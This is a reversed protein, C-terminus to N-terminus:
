CLVLFLLCPTAFLNTLVNFFLGGTGAWIEKQIVFVELALFDLVLLILSCRDFTKGVVVVVVVDKWNSQKM